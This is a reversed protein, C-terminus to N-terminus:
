NLFSPHLNKCLLKGILTQTFKAFTKKTLANQQGWISKHRIWSSLQNLIDSFLIYKSLHSFLFYKKEQKRIPKIKSFKAWYKLLENQMIQLDSGHWKLFNNHYCRTFDELVLSGVTSYDCQIAIIDLNWWSFSHINARSSLYYVTTIYLFPMKCTAEANCLFQKTFLSESKKYNRSFIGVTEWLLWRWIRISTM